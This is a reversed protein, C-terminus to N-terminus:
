GDDDGTKQLENELRDLHKGWFRRVKDLWDGVEGLGDQDLSYLRRQADPRVIVLGNDRLVKLHQSVAPRSIDFQAALDGFSREGDALSEILRRRTPDGLAAFQDM